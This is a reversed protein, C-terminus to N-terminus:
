DEKYPTVVLKNDRVDYVLVKEGTKIPDTLTIAKLVKLRGQIMIEVQGEGQDKAPIGLYVKGITGVANKLEINGSSELNKLRKFIFITSIYTLLGFLVSIALIIWQDFNTQKNALYGMWGGVCFFGVLSNFSFLDMDIGLDMDDIDFGIVNLLIILGLLVSSFVAIYWYIEIM